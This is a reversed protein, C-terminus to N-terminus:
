LFCLSCYVAYRFLIVPKYKKYFLFSLCCVWFVFWDLPCYKGSFNMGFTTKYTGAVNCCCLASYSFLIFAFSTWAFYRVLAYALMFSGFLYMSNMDFLGGLHEETAHMAM